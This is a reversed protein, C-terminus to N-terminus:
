GPKRSLLLSRKTERCSCCTKCVDRRWLWCVTVPTWSIRMWIHVASKKESPSAVSHSNSWESGYLTSTFFSHLYIKRGGVLRWSTWQSKVKVKCTQDIEYYGRTPFDPSLLANVQCDFPCGLGKAKRFSPMLWEFAGIVTLIEIKTDTPWM